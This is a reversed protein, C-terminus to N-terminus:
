RDMLRALTARVVEDLSAGAPVEDASLVREVAKAKWGLSVLVTKAAEHLDEDPGRPVLPTGGGEGVDILGGLKDGLTLTIQEATKPGIGPIKRLKPHDGDSICEVLEAVPFGGLVGLANRPGVKPVSTLLRFLRKEEVTAFGFLTLQDERAHTHVHLTCREGVEPVGVMTQLSVRLEYGVGGADLVVVGAADRLAVVGCLWGIM